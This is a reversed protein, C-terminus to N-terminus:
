KATKILEKPLLHADKIIIKKGGTVRQIQSLLYEKERQRREFAEKCKQELLQRIQAHDM